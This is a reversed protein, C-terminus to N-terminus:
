DGAAGRARDQGEGDAIVTRTHRVQQSAGGGGHSHFKEAHRQQREDGLVGTVIAQGMLRGISSGSEQFRDHVERDGGGFQSAQPPLLVRGDDTILIGTRLLVDHRELLAACKAAAISEATVPPLPTDPQAVTNHTGTFNISRINCSTSHKMLYEPLM